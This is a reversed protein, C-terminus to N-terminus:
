TDACMVRLATCVQPNGRSGCIGDTLYQNVSLRGYFNGARDVLSPGNRSHQNCASNQGYPNAHQGYRNWVGYKNQWSFRGYQGWVSNPDYESCSLCGLFEEQSSGGMILIDQSQSSANGAELFMIAALAFKRM